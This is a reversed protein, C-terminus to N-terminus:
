SWVHKSHNIETQEVLPAACFWCVKRTSSRRGQKRSLCGFVPCHLNSSCANQSWPVWSAKRCAWRSQCERGPLAPVFRTQRPVAARHLHEDKGWTEQYFNCSEKSQKWEGLSQTLSLPLSGQQTKELAVLQSRWRALEPKASRAIEAGNLPRLKIGHLGTTCQVRAQSFNRQQFNNRPMKVCKTTTQVYQFTNYNPLMLDSHQM